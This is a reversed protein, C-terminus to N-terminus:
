FAGNKLLHRIVNDKVFLQRTVEIFLKRLEDPPLETSDVEFRRISFEQEMSLSLCEPTM